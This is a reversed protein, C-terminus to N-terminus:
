IGFKRRRLPVCDSQMDPGGKYTQGNVLTGAICQPHFPCAMELDPENMREVCNEVYTGRGCMGTVPVTDASIEWLFLFWESYRFCSTQHLFPTGRAISFHLTVWAVPTTDETLQTKSSTSAVLHLFVLGQIIIHFTVLWFM